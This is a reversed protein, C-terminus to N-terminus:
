VTVTGKFQMKKEYFQWKQKFNRHIWMYENISREVRFETIMNIFYEFIFCFCCYDFGSCIDLHFRQSYLYINKKVKKNMLTLLFFISNLWQHSTLLSFIYCHLLINHIPVKPSSSGNPSSLSADISIHRLTAKTNM